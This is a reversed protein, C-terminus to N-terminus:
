ATGPSLPLLPLLFGSGKKGLPHLSILLLMKRLQKNVSWSCNYGVAATHVTGQAHTPHFTSSLRLTQEKRVARTVVYIYTRGVTM